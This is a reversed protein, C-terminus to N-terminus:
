RILAAAPAPSAPALASLFVWRVATNGDRLGAATRCRAALQVWGDGAAAPLTAVAELWGNVGALPAISAAPTNWDIAIGEAALYFDVYAVAAAGPEADAPLFRAAATLVRGAAGFDHIQPSPPAPSLVAGAGDLELAVTQANLSEGDATVAALLFTYVGAGGTLPSSLITTAGAAATADPASTDPALEPAASRYLRYTAGATPSAAFQFTLGTAATGSLFTPLGPPEPPPAISCSVQVATNTSAVGTDSETRLCFDWSGAALEDSLWTFSDDRGNDLVVACPADFDLAGAGGNAFVLTRAPWRLDIWAGSLVDATYAVTVAGSLGSGGIPALTLTGDGTLSGQAVPRQQAADLYLTLTRLGAAATLTWFLRGRTLSDPVRGVNGNRRVGALNWAGTQNAADGHIADALPAAPWNLRVRRGRDAATAALHVPLLSFPPMPWGGLGYLAFGLPAPDLAAAAPLNVAVAAEAGEAAFFHAALADQLYIEFWGAGFGQAPTFRLVASRGDALPDFAFRNVLNDPAGWPATWAQGWYM